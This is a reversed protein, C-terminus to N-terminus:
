APPSAFYAAAKKLLDRETDNTAINTPNRNRDSIRSIKVKYKNSLSDTLPVAYVNCYEVAATPGGKKMHLQVTTLLAQQSVTTISDFRVKLHTYDTPQEPQSCTLSLLM